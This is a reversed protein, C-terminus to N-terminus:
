NILLMKTSQMMISPMTVVVSGNSGLTETGRYLNLIENSEISAHKLIKNAPDRPDDIAFFKGGTAGFDGISLVGWGLALAGSQDVGLVGAYSGNGQVGIGWDITGVSPDAFGRVGVHDLLTTGSYSFDAVVLPALLTSNQNQAVITSGRNLGIAIINPNPNAANLSNIEATRGATGSHRLLMGHGVGYQNGLFLGGNVSGVTPTNTKVAGAYAWLDGATGVAPNAPNIVGIVDVGTGNRNDFDIYNGAGGAGTMNTYIGFNNSQVYLAGGTSASTNFAAVGYGTGSNQGQTGIGTLTSFGIVGRGAGSNIGRVGNGAGASIGYVGFANANDTTNEGKVGVGTSVNRGYVGNGALDNYGEVGNGNQTNRGYVGSGTGGNNLGSVGIGSSVATGYVGRGTGVNNGYVGNGALDNYGYVGNANQTNRGFVGNGTGYNEGNVGSGSTTNRGSVASGTGTTYGEVGIGNALNRGYVASGTGSSSGEVGFGNGTNSGYVASGTGGNNIGYVARGSGSAFGNIVSENIDGTVTFRNGLTPAGTNNVIIQGNALLRMRQTAQTAIILAQGDTTGLYNQGAGTGPTTGGNGFLTWDSSPVTAAALRVWQSGDNYYYGPTVNGATATNYVTMGAVHATLPAVNATGTLLVRPLLLGGPELATSTIDLKSNADPTTTGIGVQAFGNFSFLSLLCFIAFALRQPAYSNKM